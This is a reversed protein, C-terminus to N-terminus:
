IIARAPSEILKLLIGLFEAAPAGDIIRHDFSLSLRMMSRITIKEEFVVPEKVIRGVGLIASEPQNIIPTFWDVSGYSGLNTITITAGSMDEMSLGNERAKQGIEKIRESIQLITQKGADRIVPVVLGKEIAIAIGINVDKLIKIKDGELTANIYPSKEVAKALIKVLIDTITVKEEDTCDENISKRLYLLNTVDVKVHHTVMPSTMWSKLMNDGIAKRMGTYPIIEDISEEVKVSEPSSPIIVKEIDEKTIRGGPGTGEIQKYDIGKEQALKRASPTIKVKKPAVEKNEIKEGDEGIIGLVSGCPLEDGENVIIKILTGNGPAEVTNTIKDTTVELIDEGKSVIEGEKKLWKAVTGKTMTLGLKPMIIDVAM